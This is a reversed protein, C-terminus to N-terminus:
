SVGGGLRAFLCFLAVWVNCMLYCVCCDGWGSVSRGGRVCLGCKGGREFSKSIDHDRDAESQM